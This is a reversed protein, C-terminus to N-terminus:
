AFYFIRCILLTLIGGIPLVVARIALYPAVSIKVGDQRLACIVQMLVSVGSWFVILVAALLADEKGKLLEIGGSIEFFGYFLAKSGQSMRQLLPSLSSMFVSFVTVYGCIHLTSAASSVVSDTFAVSFSVDSRMMPEDEVGRRGRGLWMGAALALVTQLFFIGFGLLADGLIRAGLVSVLYSPGCFNTFAALRAAQECNIKGRKALTSAMRAGVPFGCVIGLLIVGACCRPLGFLRVSIGGLRRGVRDALGTSIFIGSIVFYPFVSPIVGEFAMRLGALTAKSAAGSCSLLYVTMWILLGVTFVTPVWATRKENM